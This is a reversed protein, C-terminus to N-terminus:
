DGPRDPRGKTGRSRGEALLVLSDRHVAECHKREPFLGRIEKSDRGVVRLLEESSYTCIGRAFTAGNARINVVGGSDFEGEFGTVGKPLLSSGDAVLAKRAGEDVFLTGVPREFFAIWRKRSQLSHRSPTFFTGEASGDFVSHLIAHDYGSGIFV